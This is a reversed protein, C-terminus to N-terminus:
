LPTDSALSKLLAGDGIVRIPQIRKRAETIQSKLTKMERWAWHHAQICSRFAGELAFDLLLREFSDDRNLDFFVM